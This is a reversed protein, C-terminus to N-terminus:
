LYDVPLISATGVVADFKLVSGTTAAIHFNTAFNTDVQTKFELTGGSATITGTGDVDTTAITGATVTGAGTLKGTGNIVLGASDTLQSGADLLITAGGSM